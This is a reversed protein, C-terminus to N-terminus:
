IHILSLNIITVHRDWKNDIHNQMRVREGAYLEGLQRTHANRKKESERALKDKSSIDYSHMQTHEQTVPLRQRQRRGFFLHSPSNRDTRLMNRWAAIATETDEGLKNCRTVIAKMNKM